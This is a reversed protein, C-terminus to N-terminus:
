GSPSQACINITSMQICHTEKMFLEFAIGKNEEQWYAPM